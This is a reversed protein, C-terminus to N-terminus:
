HDNQDPSPDDEERAPHTFLYIAICLAAAFLAGILIYRVPSATKVERQPLVLEASADPEEEEASGNPKKTPKETEPATNQFAEERQQQKQELAEQTDKLDEAADSTAPTEATEGSWGGWISDDWDESHDNGTNGGSQEVSPAAPQVTEDYSGFDWGGTEAAAPLVLAAALLVAAILIRLGKM